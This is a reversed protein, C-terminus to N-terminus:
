YKRYYLRGKTNVMVLMKNNAALTTGDSGDLQKWATGNRQYIKGVTNTLFVKGEKSITIDRGDSGSVKKWGSGMMQYIRGVRNVMWIQGANASIRAADSGEMQTWRNGSEHYNYINGASNVMFVNGDVATAIDVADSGPLRKWRNNILQYINGVTNVMLVFGGNATIALGDSGTLKVWDTGNYRYILGARNIMYCTGDSDVAVDRVDSGIMLRWTDSYFTKRWLKTECATGNKVYEEIIEGQQETNYDGITRRENCTYAYNNENLVREKIANISASAINSLLSYHELQWAHTLEHAFYPKNKKSLCSDYRSGMHIRINGTITPVVYGRDGELSGDSIFIEDRPPFERQFISLAFHYEEASIRRTRSM